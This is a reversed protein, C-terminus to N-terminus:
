GRLAQVLQRDQFALNHVTERGPVPRMALIGLGINISALFIADYVDTPPSLCLLPLNARANSIVNASDCGEYLM